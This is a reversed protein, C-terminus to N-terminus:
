AGGFNWILNWFQGKLACEIVFFVLGLILNVRAIAVAACALNLKSKLFAQYEESDVAVPPPGNPLVAGNKPPPTADVRDPKPQQHDVIVVDDNRDAASSSSPPSNAATAEQIFRQFAWESASRNMKSHEGGGSSSPIPPSWFHDSIEEVSFVRDMITDTTLKRQTKSQIINHTNHETQTFFRYASAPVSLSLYLAYRYFHVVSPCQINWSKSDHTLNYAKYPILILFKTGSEIIM